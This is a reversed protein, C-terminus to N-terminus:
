GKEGSPAREVDAANWLCSGECTRGRSKFSESDPDRPGLKHCLRALLISTGSGATLGCLRHPSSAPSLRCLVPPRPRTRPSSRGLRPSPQGLPRARGARSPEGGRGGPPGSGLGWGPEARGSSCRSARESTRLSEPLQLWVQARELASAPPPRGQLLPPCTGRPPDPPGRCSSSSAPPARGAGSRQPGWGAACTRARSNGKPAPLHGRWDKCCCLGM